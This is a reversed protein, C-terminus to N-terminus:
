YDICNLCLGHAPATLPAKKRDRSELIAEVESLSVKGRGVQVLLGVINRVMKYMFSNGQVVIKLRSPEIEFVEVLYLAREFNEYSENNKRNTFAQFNHTGKLLNSAEKMKNIELSYPVHWSFHRYLPHQSAGTCIQYSYTKSQADLTPHFNELCNELQVVRIDCPLQSNIGVLLAKTNTIKKELDLRVVQGKAHVGADTRSAGEIKFSRFGLNKLAKELENEVTPLERNKQWGSYLTGDYSLTLKYPHKSM